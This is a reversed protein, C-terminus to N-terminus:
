RGENIFDQNTKYFFKDSRYERKLMEITYNMFIGKRFKYNSKQFLNGYDRINKYYNM